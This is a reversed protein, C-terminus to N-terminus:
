RSVTFLTSRLGFASRARDGTVSVSKKTGTFRIATIRGGWSGRGDRRTVQVSRLTGISPYARQVRSATLRVKWPNAPDYADAKSVLYPVTGALTYGGSSSSFQTFAPKGAYTVIRGKTAKIAADTTGTENSQGGYVQCSTTDCLHYWQGTRSRQINVAYTRAAVAQAQLAAPRWSAPMESAVVGRVYKELPIVNLTGRTGGGSPTRANRLWGRYARTSGSPLVLRTPVSAKFEGEKRLNTRGPVAWGRWTGGSLYQVKSVSTSGNPVIRWRTISRSAPLVFTAGDATDRLRLNRAPLVVTDNGTDATLRVRLTTSVSTLATGPYYFALIQAATLGKAAAGNAGYQSMGHGHGYGLGTLTVGGGAPVTVAPDAQAPGAVVLSGSAVALAAVGLGLARM